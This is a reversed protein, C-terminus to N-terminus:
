MGQGLKVQLVVDPVRVPEPVVLRAHLLPSPADAGGVAEGGGEDAETVICLSGLEVPGRPLARLQLLRLLSSCSPHPIMPCACFIPRVLRPPSPTSAARSAQTNPASSQTV